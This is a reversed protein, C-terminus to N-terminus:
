NKPDPFIMETTAETTPDTPPNTPAETSAETPPDTPAETPEPPNTPCFPITTDIVVFDARAYNLTNEDDNVDVDNKTSNWSLTTVQNSFGHGISKGGFIALEYYETSKSVM